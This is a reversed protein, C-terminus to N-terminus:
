NKWRRRAIFALTWLIVLALGVQWATLFLVLVVALFVADGKTMGACFM